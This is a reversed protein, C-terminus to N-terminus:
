IKWKLNYVQSKKISPHISLMYKVFDKQLFPNRLELSFANSIRDSRLIDFNCLNLLLEVSKEQFMTDNLDNFNSYGGLEDLGDGTLLVKVLTKESIYKFM